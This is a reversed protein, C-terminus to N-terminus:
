LRALEEQYRTVWGDAGCEKMTGIAKSMMEKAKPLDGKRKFLESYLAYDRGLEWRMGNNNDAEIAMKVWDEADDLHQDDINLLIEAILRQSKGELIKLNQESALNHLSELDIDKEGNM